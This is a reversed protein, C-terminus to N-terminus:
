TYYSEVIYSMISKNGSFKFPVVCIIIFLILFFMLLIINGLLLSTPINKFMGNYKESHSINTKDKNM